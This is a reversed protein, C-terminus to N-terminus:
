EYYSVIRPREAKPPWVWKSLDHTLPQYLVDVTGRNDIVGGACISGIIKSNGRGDFDGGCLIAGVVDATGVTRVNGTVVIGLNIGNPDLATISSKGKLDLNGEVLFMGYGSVNGSFDLDGRVYIIEPREKTGLTINGSLKTSSYFKRTAISEWRTPDIQPIEVRPHQYVVPGGVSVNPVFTKAMDAASATVSGTYTGYGKVTNSGNFSLNENTHLNANWSPNFNDRILVNGKMSFSKDSMLGYGFAPPVTEVMPIEVVARVTRTQGNVTATSTVLRANKLGVDPGGPYQSRTREIAVNLTGSAIDNSQYGNMWATDQALQMMAHNVGSAALNKAQSLEYDTSANDTTSLNTQNLQLATISAIVGMGIVLLLLMRGM